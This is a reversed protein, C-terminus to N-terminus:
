AQDANQMSGCTPRMGIPVFFFFDQDDLVVVFISQLATMCFRFFSSVGHQSFKPIQTTCSNPIFCMELGIAAAFRLALVCMGLATAATFRLALACMEGGIAAFAHLALTRMELGIAATFHLALACTEGGTAALVHLALTSM